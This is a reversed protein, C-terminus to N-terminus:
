ERLETVSVRALYYPEKTKDKFLVDTSISSVQGPVVLLPTLSFNSFRIDVLDDVEVRDILNPMIETEILLMRGKSSLGYNKRSSINSGRNVAKLDVVQGSVSAKIEKQSLNRKAILLREDAAKRKFKLEEISQLTQRRTGKRKM